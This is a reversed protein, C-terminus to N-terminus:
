LKLMYSGTIHKSYNENQTCKFASTCVTRNMEFGEYLNNLLYLIIKLLYKLINLEKHLRKRRYYGSCLVSSRLFGRVHRYTQKHSIQKDSM